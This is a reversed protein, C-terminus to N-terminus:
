IYLKKPVRRLESPDTKFKISQSELEYHGGDWKRGDRPEHASDGNIGM